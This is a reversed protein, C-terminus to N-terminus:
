ISLLEDVDVGNFKDTKILEYVSLNINWLRDCALMTAVEPDDPRLKSDVKFIRYIM